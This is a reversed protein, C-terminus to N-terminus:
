RKVLGLSELDEVFRLIDRVDTQGYEASVVEMIECLDREGDMLSIVEYMKKPFSADRKEVEDYWASRKKGLGDAFSDADLTGKFRRRPVMRKAKQEDKSLGKRMLRSVAGKGVASDVVANLRALERAGHESLAAAQSEVFDDSGAESDLRRLSRVASAERKAVQGVRMIHFLALKARGDESGLMECSAKEVAESIRSMGESCTLVALRHVTEEGADALTLAAVTVAWGVRRLSDESVKDITDMSTHYFMDPWQTLSICPAGVTSENFEAHDSGGTFPTRAHRFNSVMGIKVMPDYEANAREVMSYVFDNLYSPLSDPTCDMCLTSRCQSQDEGVMDMNIGAVLGDYMEPHLSLLAVSGVTEPVWLFRLTRKPREIKGSSILASATRAVEMLLGSGSANDNASPKPHCLHAVLFVEEQPRESGKIRADVVSYSGPSLDADVSAHLRVKGGGSLIKRLEDGQRKSLSFGFRISKADKATPWIGQYAHADPIDVSERVGPFDYSLSDTIVGAAGREVVAKLQVARAKGTALVFRGKVKKGTYDEDSVGKGVDVLEATVGGKPTSKSFTHLSQPVDTYRALLREEPEVLRLEAQRATWGMASTYTWYKRKGDAPYQEVKVEDVGAAVLEDRVHEAASHMMSSAQVRHFRTIGAVYSKAVTGSLEDKVVRGFDM